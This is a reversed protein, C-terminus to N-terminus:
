PPDRPVGPTLSSGKTSGPTLSSGKTGRTNPLIGQYEGTNGSVVELMILPTCPNLDWELKDLIKREMRMVQPCTLTLIFLVFKIRLCIDYTM